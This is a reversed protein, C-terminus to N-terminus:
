IASRILMPFHAAYMMLRNLYVIKVIKDWRNLATRIDPHQAAFENLHKRTIVHM